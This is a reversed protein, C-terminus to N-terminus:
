IAAGVDEFEGLSASHVLRYGQGWVTEFVTPFGKAEILRGVDPKAALKQRIKCLYVDLIKIEPADDANVPYMYDLVAQKTIARGKASFLCEVMAREHRTFRLDDYAAPLTQPILAHAMSLHRALATQADDLDVALKNIEVQMDGLLQHLQGAGKGTQLADIIRLAKRASEHQVHVNM